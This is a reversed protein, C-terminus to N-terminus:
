NVVPSKCYGCFVRKGNGRGFGEAINAAVASSSRRVQSVIGFQDTRPFAETMKFVLM